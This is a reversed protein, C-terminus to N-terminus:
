SKSYRPFTPEILPSLDDYNALLYIVYTSAFLIFLSFVNELYASTTERCEIPSQPM